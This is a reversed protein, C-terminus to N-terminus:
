PTPAEPLLVFRAYNAVDFYRRAAEQVQQRTLARVMRDYPELLGALPEGSQERAAINALWYANQELQVERDRLLAERVKEIDAATPGQAKLTDILAFVTRTLAEVNEPSSGFQIQISYEQRPIRSGAGGVSPSYTGGLRERLTENLRLQFVDTLARLAFRNAPTYEFPGTFVMLTNARPETGKRVVKQVVGKPPVQAIDRWQEGRASSPLSALYREVLPRVSDPVINGVLVFTFDGANAFRERYFRLGEAPDVEAFTEASIPRARFHHQSMTVLITDAFVQMPSAGRNAIYQAAQARFTEFAASDLRPATFQLHALQFLTELDKPSARGSLGETTEGISASLSVAKGSMKKGLDIRNFEGLGSLAVIQAAQTASMYMSDPALSTGGFSWAGFLVEDSKFTTPKLLVRAGNSLTWETVGVEPITRQATVKGPAPLREILPDDSLSEAWATVPVSEARGFVAILQSEAPVKVGEKQPAQAVIVRNEDTIWERALENVDQLTISPLLRRVLDWEYEIGPIADGSLFHSIYEEVLAGSNTTEREDFSREYARLVDQKERELETPLFGHEDVRRAEVLIAELGREIGGDEVAAGLSFAEVTRAFFGSKSASAGLFPAGPKQAIEALRNNLMGVYLREMLIRRYDGVTTVPEAPLKFLVNVFSSTAEPDTAVSVLPERNAPVGPVPRPRPTAPMAIRGFHHRILSEIRGPDFDGVAVVAMLDPRYWDRYFRRLTAPTASEISERTGIPLRTAYLSGRLAVPLWKQMMRDDAGRRGRWEEVVIGRENAVETSDFIQGHAWDELIQFAQDVIRATDTPIPLIYITEDFGTGANLDAGFRVGISELWSVLENKRFNTTGNFATHEVFHALGLQDDDELVSGANVVLRLEARKEPKSNQRIYYRLGNPLTGIRIRPDTPLVQTAVPANTAAPASQASLLPPAGLALVLLTASSRLSM